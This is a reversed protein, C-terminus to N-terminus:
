ESEKRIREARSCLTRFGLMQGDFDSNWDSSDSVLRITPAVSLIANIAATSSASPHTQPLACVARMWGSVAGQEAPEHSVGSLLNWRRSPSHAIAASDFTFRPLIWSVKLDRVLRCSFLDVPDVTCQAKYTQTTLM